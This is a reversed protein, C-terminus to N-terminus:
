PEILLTWYDTKKWIRELKGYSFFEEKEKGSHAFIGDNNYGVIVMFHNKEIVFFGFDVMVILPYGKQIKDRIDEMGGKYASARFGARRPYLLMDMSLTGKLHAKFIDGAIQQPAVKYGWFNFVEALSVPGCQYADQSFFPVSLMVNDGRGKKELTEPNKWTEPGACGSVVLLIVLIVSSVTKNLM